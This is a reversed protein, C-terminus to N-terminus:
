PRCRELDISQLLERDGQPHKGKSAYLEGLRKYSGALYDRRSRLVDTANVYLEFEVIASDATTLDLLQSACRDRTRARSM